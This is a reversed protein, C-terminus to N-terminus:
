DVAHYWQIPRGTAESYAKAAAENIVDEFRNSSVLIPTYFANPHDCAPINALVRSRLLSYDDPTSAGLRLRSLLDVFRRDETNAGNQRMIAHFIVAKDISHWLLKGLVINQAGQVSANHIKLEAYLSTDGVPALQAFDGAFIVNMGGFPASSKKVACLAENIRMLTNSGIM